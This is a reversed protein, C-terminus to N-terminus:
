ANRHVTPNHNKQQLHRINSTIIKQMHRFDGEKQKVNSFGPTSM